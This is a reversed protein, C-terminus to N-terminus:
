KKRNLVTESGDSYKLVIIDSKFEDLEAVSCLPENYDGVVLYLDSFHEVDEGDVDIKSIDTYLSGTEEDVYIGQGHEDLGKAVLITHM